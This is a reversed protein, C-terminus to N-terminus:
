SIYISSILVATSQYVIRNKEMKCTSSVVFYTVVVLVSCLPQDLFWGKLHSKM